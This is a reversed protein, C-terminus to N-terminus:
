QGCARATWKSPRQTVPCAGALVTGTADEYTMTVGFGLSLRLFHGKRSATSSGLPAARHSRLDYAFEGM